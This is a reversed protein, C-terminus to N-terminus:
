ARRVTDRLLGPLSTSWCAEDHGGDFEGYSFRECVRGLVERLRRTPELLVWEQLGVELTVTGLRVGSDAIARTLWEAEHAGSVANPWWFSGSQCVSVGFREPAACQAYLATLGGLSQGAIRTRAPDATLPAGLPGGSDFGDGTHANLVRVLDAVLEPSCTLDRVRRELDGSGVLLTVTPPLVGAAQWEDLVHGSDVWREGDLLVLVDWTEPAPGAPIHWWLDARARDGVPVVRGPGATARPADPPGASLVSAPADPGSAVSPLYGGPRASERAFPDAVACHQLDFWMAIRDRHEPEAAALARPRRLEIMQAVEPAVRSQPGGQAAIAYSGRWGSGLRIAYWWIDTGPVHSFFAHEIEKPDVIKNGFLAVRETGPGGRHVFTYTCAGDAVDELLPAGTTKIEGWFEAVALPGPRNGLAAIRPSAVRRVPDPRTAQPPVTMTMAGDGRPPDPFM